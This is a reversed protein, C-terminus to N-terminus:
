EMLMSDDFCLINEGSRANVSSALLVSACIPNVAEFLKYLQKKLAKTKYPEAMSEMKKDIGKGYSSSLDKDDGFVTIRCKKLVKTKSPQAM